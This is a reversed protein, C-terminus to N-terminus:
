QNFGDGKKVDVQTAQSIIFIDPLRFVVLWGICHLLLTNLKEKNMRKGFFSINNIVAVVM